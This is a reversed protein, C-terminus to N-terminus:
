STRGVWMIVRIVDSGEFLTGDCLRGNVTVVVDFVFRRGYGFGTSEEAEMGMASLDFKVMLDPVGDGDYDGIATPSRKAPFVGDLLLTSVDIDEVDYGRPLEIYGAVFDAGRRMNFVDPKVDVVAPIKAVYDPPPSPNEVIGSVTQLFWFDQRSRTTSPYWEYEWDASLVLVPGEPHNVTVSSSSGVVDLNDWHAYHILVGPKSTPSGQLKPSKVANFVAEFRYIKGVVVSAPDIAWGVDSTTWGEVSNLSLLTYEVLKEEGYAVNPPAVNIHLTNVDSALPAELRFTLSLNQVTVADELVEPVVRRQATFGPAHFDVPDAESASVALLADEAVSTQFDWEYRGDSVQPPWPNFHVFERDALLTLNPNVLPQGSDDIWNHIQVLWLESFDLPVNAISDEVIGRWFGHSFEFAVKNHVDTFTVRWVIGRGYETIYLRGLSDFALGRPFNMSESAEFGAVLIRGVGEPNFVYVNQSESDAAESAYVNGEADIVLGGQSSRLVGASFVASSGEVDIKYITGSGDSTYVNGQADFCVSQPGVFPGAFVVVEGGPSVSYIYGAHAAVFLNWDKDFAIANPNGFDFDVGLLVTGDPLVKWVRSRDDSVWLNGDGDFALGAPGEFGSVFTSVAGDPTVKSVSTGGGGGAGENAVYLNGDADFALGFPGDFGSAFVELVAGPCVATPAAFTVKGLLVAGVSTLLCVTLLLSVTKKLFVM